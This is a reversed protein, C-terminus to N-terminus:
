AESAFFEVAAKDGAIYLDHWDKILTNQASQAREFEERQAKWGALSDQYEADELAEKKRIKEVESNWSALAEAHKGEAEALKRTRRSTLVKDVWSLDPEFLDAPPPVPLQSHQPKRPPEQLFIDSGDFRGLGAGSGQM